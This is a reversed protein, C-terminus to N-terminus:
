RSVRARADRDYLPLSGKLPTLRSDRVRIVFLSYRPDSRMQDFEPDIPFANFWGLQRFDQDLYYFTEDRDGLAAYVTAINYPLVPRKKAVAQLEAVVRLADQRRGLRAYIRGLGAERDGISWPNFDAQEYEKLALEYKGEIEYTRGLYAHTKNFHPDMELVAKLQAVSRDYDRVYYYTAGLDRSIALSLPDLDRALKLEEIAEGLREFATLNAAHWHHATPNGPDLELARQLDKEAAEIQMLSGHYLGLAAYAQGLTPDLRLAKEAEAPTDYFHPTNNLCYTSALGAHPEAYQSDLQIAQQFYQIAKELDEDGRRNWFYMGKLYADHAEPSRTAPRSATDLSRSGLTLEIEKATARGIEEEIRLVDGLDSDYNSSWVVAQDFVRVLEASIRARKEALRVSAELIYDVGLESGIQHASKNTNKYAMVSTRGIVALRQPSYRGLAAIMEDTIGDSFYERSPDGSLNAFPLVALRIIRAAPPASKSRFPSRSFYRAALAAVALAVLAVLSVGIAVRKVGLVLGRASRVAKTTPLATATPASPPVLALDDEEETVIRARTTKEVVLEEPEVAVLRVPAVFRYGRRPVTEIFALGNAAEALAKRVASINVNLNGEEVFTDPWVEQMLEEKNVVHGARRVLALLTELAKPTLSVLENGHFLTREISDLRFEGFAYLNNDPKPMCGKLFKWAKKFSKGTKSERAEAWVDRHASGLARSVQFKGFYYRRPRSLSLPFLPLVFGLTLPYPKLMFRLVSIVTSSCIRTTRRALTEGWTEQKCHAPSDQITVGSSAASAAPTFARAM